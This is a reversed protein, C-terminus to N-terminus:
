KQPQKFTYKTNEDEDENYEKFINFMDKETLAKEMTKASRDLFSLLKESSLMNQRYEETNALISKIKEDEKKNITQRRDVDPKIEREEQINDTENDKKRSQNSEEDSAYSKKMLNCQNGAEYM